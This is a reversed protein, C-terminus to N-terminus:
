GEGVTTRTIIHRSRNRNQLATSYPPYAFGGRGNEHIIHRLRNRNQLATGYPPYIFGGRSNTHIQPRLATVSTRHRYKKLLGM